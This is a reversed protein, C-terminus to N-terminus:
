TSSGGSTTSSAPTITVNGWGPCVSANPVVLKTLSYLQDIQGKICSVTANMTGNYVAQNTNIATQEDKNSRVEAALASIKTEYDKVLEVMKQDTYKDAKLLAIESDKNSIETNLRMEYRTVPMDDSCASGIIRQNGIGVGGFLGPLLTAAAGVTGIIGLATNANGQAHSVYEAM